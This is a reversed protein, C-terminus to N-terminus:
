RDRTVGPAKRWRWLGAVFGVGYSLHLTALVAPLLIMAPVDRRGAVFSAAVVGTLYAAVLVAGKGGDFIMFISAAVLYAVLAAPAYHRFRRSLGRKHMVLIKYLGYRFYQRALGRFTRRPEYYVHLSPDLLIRGGAATLRLNLEDDQNNELDEDFTGIRDFISRRYTGLYVSDVWARTRGYRFPSNGIGVKSTTAAAVARQMLTESLPRQVGGVNDAGTEFLLEICRRVYDPGIFSHGDVRVIVEGRAAEIGINLAAPTIRKVNDCIRVEFRSERSLSEVVGLTGDTSMGDVIVVEMRDEPYDQSIVSRLSKEIAKGENRVPMVVTVFPVTM